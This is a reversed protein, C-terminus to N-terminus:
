IKDSSNEEEEAEAEGAEVEAEEGAAEEECDLDGTPVALPCQRVEVALQLDCHASGSRLRLKWGRAGSGLPCQRVEVAVELDCHASGSRLRSKWIATPM